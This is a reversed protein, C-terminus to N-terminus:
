HLYTTQLIYVGARREEKLSQTISLETSAERGPLAKVGLGDRPVLGRSAGLGKERCFFLVMREM